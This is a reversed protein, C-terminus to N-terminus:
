AYHSAERFLILESKIEDWKAGQDKRLQIFSALALADFVLLKQVDSLHGVM